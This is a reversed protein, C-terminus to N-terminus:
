RMTFNSNTRIKDSNFIASRSHTDEEGGGETLGIYDKIYKRTTVACHFKRGLNMYIGGSTNPNMELNWINKLCSTSKRIPSKSCKLM